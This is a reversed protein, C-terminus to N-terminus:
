FKYPRKKDKDKESSSFTIETPFSQMKDIWERM